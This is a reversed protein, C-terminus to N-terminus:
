GDYEPETDGRHGGPSTAQEITPAVGSPAWVKQYFAEASVLVAAVTAFVDAANFDGAVWATVVGAVVSFVAALAIRAKRAMGPQQAVSTVLPVLAGVLLGLFAPDSVILQILAEM